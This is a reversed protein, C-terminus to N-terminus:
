KINYTISEIELQLWMWNKEPLKWTATMVSPITIGQFTKQKKVDLVWEYKKSEPESGMYRLAKYQIFHGAKNFYFTGSEQTGKYNMTARASTDSIHEWTIFPSVALSPFWVMEGIYRQITGENIKQNQQNVFHVLSQLYINMSGTGNKFIDRGTFFIFPNMTARVSWVFSPTDITTYQTAHAKMWTEQNPKMKMLAKQEIRGNYIYPSNVIGSTRLWLQVCAPLKQIDQETINQKSHITDQQLIESIYQQTHSNFRFEGYSLIVMYAILINPITGYHADKWVTIIITQSLIVAILGIVWAQSYDNIILIGYCVFLCTILLWVIGMSKSIPLTLEKIETISFGKIFGLIHIVAHVFVLIVFAIHM